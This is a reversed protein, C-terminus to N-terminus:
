PPDWESQTKRAVPHWRHTMREISGNEGSSRFATEKRCVAIHSKLEEEPPKQHGIAQSTVASMLGTSFSM